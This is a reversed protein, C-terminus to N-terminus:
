ESSHACDRLKDEDLKLLYLINSYLKDTSPRFATNKFYKENDEVDYGNSGGDLRVFYRKTNKDISIAYYWGMGGYMIGLDIYSLDRNSNNMEQLSKLTWVEDYVINLNPPLYQYLDAMDAPINDLTRSLVIYEQSPFSLKKPNEVKNRHYVGFPTSISDSRYEM